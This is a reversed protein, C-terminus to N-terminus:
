VGEAKAIAASIADTARREIELRQFFDAISHDDETEYWAIMLKAAELLEANVEHLRRLEAAAKYAVVEGAYDIDLDDALRPALAKEESM